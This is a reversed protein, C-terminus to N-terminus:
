RGLTKMYELVQQQEEDSLQKAFAPMRGEGNAIIHLLDADSKNELGAGNVQPMTVKLMKAMQPNGTGDAGHCGQCRKQYTEQGTAAATDIAVGSM